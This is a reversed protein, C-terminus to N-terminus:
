TYHGDPSRRLSWRQEPGLGLQALRQDTLDCSMSGCDLVHLKTATGAM